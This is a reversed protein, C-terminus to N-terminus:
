AFACKINSYMLGPPPALGVENQYMLHHPNEKFYKAIGAILSLPGELIEIGKLNLFDKIPKEKITLEESLRTQVAFGLLTQTHEFLHVAEFLFPWEDVIKNVATGKNITARQICYTEAMLKRVSSEQLRDTNFARKLEDQRIELEETDEVAPQWEVCGYWDSCTPKKKRAEDDAMKKASCVTLPRRVNEVRNELQIFLSEYGTGIVKTGSLERDQFSFPYEQVIQRAIERLKARGPRINEKCLVDDIIVRVLERREKPKPRKKERLALMLNPPMKHWPVAYPECPLSYDMPGPTLSSTQPLKDSQPLPRSISVLGVQQEIFYM